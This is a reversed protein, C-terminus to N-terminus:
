FTVGSGALVTRKTTRDRQQVVVEAIGAIAQQSLNVTVQIPDGGSGSGTNVRSASAQGGLIGRTQDATFVFGGSKPLVILEPGKEGVVIPTGGPALGGSAFGLTKQITNVTVNVTKSVVNSIANVLGQVASTGNVNAAVTVTKNIVRGIAGSLADNGQTGLTPGGPVNSVTKTTKDVVRKIAASLGDNEPTGFVNSITNVVKGTVGFIATSLGKVADTGQTNAQVAVTKDHVTELEQKFGQVKGRAIEIQGAIDLFGKNGTAAALFIFLQQLAALAGDVFGLIASGAATINIILGQTFAVFGPIGDTRVWNIFDRAAPLVVNHMVAAFGDLGQSAGPLISDVLERLPPGLQNFADVLVKGAVDALKV